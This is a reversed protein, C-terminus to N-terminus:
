RIEHGLAYYDCLHPYPLSNTLEINNRKQGDWVDRAKRRGQRTTIPGICLCQIKM